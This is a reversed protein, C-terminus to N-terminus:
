GVDINLVLCSGKLIKLYSWCYVHVADTNGFSTHNQYELFMYYISKALALLSAGM